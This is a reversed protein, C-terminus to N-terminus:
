EYYKKLKSLDICYCDFYKSWNRFVFLNSQGTGGTADSVTVLIKSPDEPLFKKPLADLLRKENITYFDGVRNTNEVGVYKKAYRRLIGDIEIKKILSHVGYHRRYLSVRM